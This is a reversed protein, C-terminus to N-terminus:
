HVLISIKGQYAEYFTDLIIHSDVVQEWDEIVRLVVDMDFKGVKYVETGKTM